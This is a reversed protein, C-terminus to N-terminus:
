FDIWAKKEREEWGGREVKWEEEERKGKGEEGCLCTRGRGGEKLSSGLL